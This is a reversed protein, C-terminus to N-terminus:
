QFQLFLCVVVVVFIFFSFNFCFMIFIISNIQLLSFFTVLKPSFRRHFPLPKCYSSVIVAVAAMSNKRLQTRTESSSVSFFMSGMLIPFYFIIYRGRPLRCPMYILMTTKTKCNKKGKKLM